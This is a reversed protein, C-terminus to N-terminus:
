NVLVQHKEFMPVYTFCVVVPRLLPLLLLVLVCMKAPAADADAAPPASAPAPAAPAAAAAAALCCSSLGVQWILPLSLTRLSAGNAFSRTRRSVVVKWM